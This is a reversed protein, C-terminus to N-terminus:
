KKGENGMGCCSPSGSNERMMQQHMREMLRTHKSIWARMEESTMRDVSQAEQLQQKMEQMLLMHNQAAAQGEQAQAMEAMAAKRKAEQVRQIQMKYDEYPAASVLTSAAILFGIAATKLYRNM